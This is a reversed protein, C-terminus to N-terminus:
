GICSILIYAAMAKAGVSFSIGCGGVSDADQYLEKITGPEHHLTPGNTTTNWDTAGTVDEAFACRGPLHIQWALDTPAGEPGLDQYIYSAHERWIYNLLRRLYYRHYFCFDRDAGGQQQMRTYKLALQVHRHKICSSTPAHYQRGISHWDSFERNHRAPYVMEGVFLHEFMPGGGPQDHAFAPHLAVCVECCWRDAQEEVALALFAIRDIRSRCRRMLRRGRCWVFYYFITVLLDMLFNLM